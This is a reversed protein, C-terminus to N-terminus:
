IAIAHVVVMSLNDPAGHRFIVQRISEMSQRMVGGKSIELFAQRLMEVLCYRYVGDSCLGFVMGSAIRGTKVHCDLSNEVGVARVLKGYNPHNKIQRKSYQFRVERQKEWVDDETIQILRTYPFGRKLQYCRSDGISLVAWQGDRILLVVATSGCIHGKSEEHIIQNSRGLINRLEAIDETFGASMGKNQCKEWWGRLMDCIITSAFAGNEHGGMGDAVVALACGNNEAAFIRDQNQDRGLGTECFGELRIRM